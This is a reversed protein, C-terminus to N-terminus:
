AILLHNPTLRQECLECFLKEWENAIVKVDFKQVSQIGNLAIEKRLSENDMLMQIKEAMAKVNSNPTIFGNKGDEIIDSLSIYSDMAIPVCAYKQAEILTMGFGEFDRASTQLLISAKKYYPEPNQFGLFEVRPLNKAKEKVFSLDIGDGLFILNWEPNKKHLLEWVKLVLSPRKEEEIMRAVFIITKNKEEFDLSEKNFIELPNTIIYLKNLNKGPELKKYQELFKQSLFVVADSYKFAFNRKKLERYKKLKYILFTPLIKALFGYKAYPNMLLSYHHCGIIKTKTGKKAKSCFESYEPLQFQQNILIDIENNLLINRLWEVTEDNQLDSKKPCEVFVKHGRISFEKALIKSVTEVGGNAPFKELLFLINM